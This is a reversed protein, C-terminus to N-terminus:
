HEWNYSLERSVYGALSELILQCGRHLLNTVQNIGDGCCRSTFGSLEAVLYRDVCIGEDRRDNSAKCLLGQEHYSILSIKQREPSNEYFGM